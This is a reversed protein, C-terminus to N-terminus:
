KNGVLVIEHSWLYGCILAYKSGDSIWIEDFYSNFENVFWYDALLSEDNLKFILKKKSELAQHILNLACANSIYEVGIFDKKNIHEYRVCVNKRRVINMLKFQISQMSNTVSNKHIRHNYLAKAIYKFNFGHQCFKLALDWDQVGTFSIDFLGCEKISSIKIVKLHNAIMGDLLDSYIDQERTFNINQYGGYVSISKKGDRVHYNDTFIYDIDGDSVYKCVEQLANPELYDDCDLFAVYEGQAMSIGYNQISSIGQNESFSVLKVVDPYREKISELLPLVREDSSNDNLLLIELPSYKEQELVSRICQWLHEYHNFVPILVTINLKNRSIDRADINIYDMCDPEVCPELKFKDQECSLEKISNPIYWNIYHNSAEELFRKKLHIDTHNLYSLIYYCVDIWAKGSMLFKSNTMSQNNMRYVVASDSIFKLKFRKEMLHIWFCWDEKAPLNENFGIKKVENRFLAAHIPICFGREWFILFTELESLDFQKISSEYKLSNMENNSLYYDSITVDHDNELAYFVQKSIKNPLLIDDSDLFQIYLGSTKVLGVNRTAALGINHNNNIFIVNPYINSIAFQFQTKKKDTSCDDIVIIELPGIYSSYVSEICSLLFQYQNYCPIIVSVLPLHEVTIESCVYNLDILSKELYPMSHRNNILNLLKASKAVRKSPNNIIDMIAEFYEEPKPDKSLLYGTDDDIIDSIGGVDPAIIPVNLFGCSIIITPIGEYKSTMIMATYDDDLMIKAIDLEVGKFVVNAPHDGFDSNVDILKSGYLNVSIEPYQRAIAYLLEVNKQDDMRAIWALKINAVNIVKNQSYKEQALIVNETLNYKVPTYLPLIKQVSTDDLDFTKKVFTKFNANDSFLYDLHAIGHELFEKAFGELNGFKDYQECFINAYLRGTFRKVYDAENILLQWSTVSNINHFVAPKILKIFTKLFDYSSSLDNFQLFDRCSVVTIFSYDGHLDRNCEGIFEPVVIYINFHPYLGHIAKALNLTYLEGGGYSLCPTTFLINATNFDRRLYKLATELLFSERSLLDNTNANVGMSEVLIPRNQTFKNTNHRLKRYLASVGDNKLIRLGKKLNILNIQKSLIYKIVQKM